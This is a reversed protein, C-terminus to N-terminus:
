PFRVIYLTISRKGAYCYLRILIILMATLTNGIKIVSHGVANLLGESLEVPCIQALHEIQEKIYVVAHLLYFGYPSFDHFSM